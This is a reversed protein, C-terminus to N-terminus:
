LMQKRCVLVKQARKEDSGLSPEAKERAMFHGRKLIGRGTVRKEKFM